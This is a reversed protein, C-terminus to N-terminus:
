QMYDTSDGEKCLAARPGKKAIKYNIIKWEANVQNGTKAKGAM